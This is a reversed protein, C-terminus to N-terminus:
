AALRDEGLEYRDRLWTGARSPQNVPYHNEVPLWGRVHSAVLFVRVTDHYCDSYSPVYDDEGAAVYWFAEQLAKRQARYDRRYRKVTAPSLGTADAIQRKTENRRFRPLLELYQRVCPDQWRAFAQDRVTWYRNM